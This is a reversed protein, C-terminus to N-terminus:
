RFNEKYCELPGELDIHGDVNDDNKDDDVYDSDWDISESM